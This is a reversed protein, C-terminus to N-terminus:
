FEIEKDGIKIVQPEVNVNLNENRRTDKWKNPRLNKLGFIQAAVNMHKTANKYLSLEYDDATKERSYELADGVIIYKEAYARVTNPHCGLVKAAHIVYGKCDLLVRAVIEPRFAEKQHQEPHRDERRIVTVEDGKKEAFIPPMQLVDEFTAEPQWSSRKEIAESPEM